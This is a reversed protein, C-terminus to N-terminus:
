SRCAEAFENFTGDPSPLRLPFSGKGELEFVVSQGEVAANFVKAVPKRESARAVESRPDYFFRGRYVQEGDITLTGNKRMTRRGASDLASAINEDGIAILMNYSGGGCSILATGATGPSYIAQGEDYKTWGEGDYAPPAQVTTAAAIAALATAIIM